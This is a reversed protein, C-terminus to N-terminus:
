GNKNGEDLQDERKSRIVLSVTYLILGLWTLSYAAYVYNEAGQIVGDGVAAFIM